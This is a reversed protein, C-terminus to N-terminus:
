PSTDELMGRDLLSGGRDALASDARRIGTVGEGGDRRLTLHTGSAGAGRSRPYLRPM